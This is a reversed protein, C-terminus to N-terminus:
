AQLIWNQYFWHGPSEPNCSFFLRSGPESCRAVAQEVFSRPMLAVEDLLVGALTVGQIYTYSQEDHGGFLYYTNRVAGRSITLRNEGRHETVTCVGALWRPLLNTLNRRLSEISRGCLAFSRDRFATMSWLVFGLTMWLTKGSRIAGDCIVAEYDRTEPLYWWLAARTQQRSPRTFIM